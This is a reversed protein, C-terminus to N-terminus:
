QAYVHVVYMRVEEFDVQHVDAIVRVLSEPLLVSM